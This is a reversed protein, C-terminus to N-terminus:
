HLQQPFADALIAKVIVEAIKVTVNKTIGSKVATKINQSQLRNKPVPLNNLKQQTEPVPM